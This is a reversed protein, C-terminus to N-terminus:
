YSVYKFEAETPKTTHVHLGSAKFVLTPSDYIGPCSQIYLLAKDGFVLAMSWGFLSQTNTKLINAPSIARHKVLEMQTILWYIDWSVALPIIMPLLLDLPVLELSKNEQEHQSAPM